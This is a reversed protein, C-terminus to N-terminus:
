HIAFGRDRAQREEIRRFAPSTLPTSGPSHEIGRFVTHLAGLTPFGPTVPGPNGTLWSGAEDTALRRGQSGKGHPVNVM